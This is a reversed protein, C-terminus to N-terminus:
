NIYYWYCILSFLIIFFTGKIVNWTNVDHVGRYFSDPDTNKRFDTCRNQKKKTYQKRLQKIWSYLRLIFFLVVFFLIYYKLRM